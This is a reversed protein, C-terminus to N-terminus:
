PTDKRAECYSCGAMRTLMHECHREWEAASRDIARALRRCSVAFWYRGRGLTRPDTM